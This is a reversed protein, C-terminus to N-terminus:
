PQQPTVVRYFRASGNAALSDPVQITRPLPDPAVDMLKLWVGGTLDDSYLVSYTQDAGTNFDFVFNDGERRVSLIQLDGAIRPDTGNIFEERNTFGDSDFDLDADGAFFPSFLYTVEWDDAIGDADFDTFWNAPDNGFNAPVRRQLSPGQGDALTPWPERNNYRVKDALIYPVFGVDPPVSQPADPKYLEINEGNNDLAGIWPGFVQVEFPVNYKAQFAAPDTPAVLLRANAPLVASVPFVYDVADGLRWTNTPYAADYLPVDSATINLLEIFEDGGPVPNYMIRNIVVPGVKPYANLAGRGGRFEELSAPNDAGFSRQNLTVGPGLGNPYRGFSVGNESAGFDVNDVFFTLNGAADAATLWAEDGHASDFTFANTGNAPANLQAEYFVAYAGPQIVANNPIRFKKLVAVDDSLYWGSIDVASTTPNFLEVADELPPDTHSLVENIVVSVIPGISTRGPTGLYEASSNWNDPDDYDGRTNVVELSSGSGDAREPWDGSDGYSFAHIVNDSADVLTLREGGNDLRGSFVGSAIMVGNTDYRAAFSALDRVIVIRQGAGLTAPGFTFTIGNTFSAGALDLAATGINILEIYEFDDGGVPNYMIESIRLNERLESTNSPDILMAYDFHVRISQALSTALFLGGKETTTGVVLPQTLLTSWVDNTRQEFFLNDGSRRLRIVAEDLDFVGSSLAMANGLADIRKAALTNGNEIGFAYRNTAGSEIAEIQLGTLYNGFQRSAPRVGTQLIWDSSTPLSRWVFPYPAAPDTIARASDDLVQLVLWGPVDSLSLWAGGPHNWRYDVNRLGWFDELRVTTFPSFGGSGYVSAERTISAQQGEADTGQVSFNYLGPRVFTAVGQGPLTTDFNALLAPPTWGYSLPTGEPDFSDRADLALAQDVAVNWSDPDPKLSMQPPTNGTKTVTIAAARVANGWQDVGRVNLANLGSRLVIGSITWTNQNNWIVVAEPQGEVEINFVAYPAQGTLSITSANTTFDSGGNDSIQLPLTANAGMRTQCFGIRGSFWSHYQASNVTFATTAEEEAQLWADIRASNET